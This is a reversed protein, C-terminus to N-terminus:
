SKRKSANLSRWVDIVIEARQRRAKLSEAAGLAELYADAAEASEASGEAIAQREAVTGSAGLFIRARVRKRLIESRELGAKAHAYKDDTLSLYLLASELKEDSIIDHSM